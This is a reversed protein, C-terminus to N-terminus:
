GPSGCRLPRAAQSRAATKPASSPTTEVALRIIPTAADAADFSATRM